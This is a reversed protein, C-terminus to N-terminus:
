VRVTRAQTRIVPLLDARRRCRYDFEKSVFDDPLVRHFRSATRTTFSEKYVFIEYTLYNEPTLSCKPRGAIQPRM